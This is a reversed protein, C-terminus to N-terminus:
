DDNVITGQGQSDSITANVPSSLNVFLTENPEVVLEGKVLVTLTLSTVGPSFSLTTLAKATYDGPAVATGNATQYKVSVTRSSALSLKVTFTMAVTGSDPETVSVNNISITATDNDKITGIGTGAGTAITANTPSSLVLKFTEDLEDILDGKVSVSVNKSVQGPAFTLTTLPLATYDGPALATTNATAYKVTISKSSPGSLTVAFTANIAGTNGENVMVSNVSLKPQTENDLITLVATKPTGLNAGGTVNSLTLNVTENGEYVADNCITIVFTKNTMDGDAWSLTGTKTVYDKGAACSTFGVATGNTTAYKVTAAGGSGGTRTVNITMTGASENVSYTSASLKLSGGENVTISVTDTDSKAGGTGLNGLDNTVIQLAAAGSYNLTPKFSLGNLATNINAVTGTFSTATDNTGDGTIFSLGSTGSLTITGKTATLTVRVANSGADSDDISIQNSGGTSFVKATNEGTTQAAPVTNVPADNPDLITLTATNPSGLTAGGSMVTLDLNLTEDPSENVGDNIIPLQITKNTADGAPWTVFLDGNVRAVRARMASNYTTFSGGVIIRGDPQLPTATLIVNNAGTGPNFTTDLTGDSNVRVIRNRSVGDYMVFNGCVIVKGDPQLSTTWVVGSPGSVPNFSPDHTGDANARILRNRAVGNFSGFNGGIIVKGDPQVAVGWVISNDVGTGSNFSTDLTGDANLRAIRGIANGDYGTFGGAIFIKGDSQLAMTYVGSSGSAGTHGTPIFTTDLSGNSHMRALRGRLTGDYASFEGGIIAKGDPQLLIARVDPPTGDPTIDTAGTGPDFSTDLTGDSNLRAIHARATGDYDTFAGGIIIRGDTQTAIAYVIGNAGTGPNFTADLTGNSNLRAIHARATGDYNLFNGGILIKGDAQVAVSWVVSDAGTGPTFSTDVSGPAFRYDAASTTVDSLSVKAVVENDTGGTRTLTITADGATEDVNYTASSFALSGTAPLLRAIHDSAAAANNYSIFDGGILIKGDPQVAVAQVSDDAGAGGNNFSADLTGDANLRAIKDSCAAGNYSTFDGGIVVKGDTQVAVAAVTTDTGVGSPNFTADLTGDSNLRAVGDGPDAGNYDSFSGGILIKGDPQLAAAKVSSNAGFGGSNFSADLTGDANLRAIGNSCDAGNYNAFTGAIIVKGDTQVVVAMVAGDDAGTISSNFSTDLTGDSNLRAIRDSVNADGNYSTFDGGILIKGDPQVAVARVINNTGAGGNNFSTDLTGDANLRAITDSCDAGNYNAFTGGILIKGDTQVAVAQVASSAGAGSYNFSTDLTGDANLRAIRDSANADGNYSTFDGGILIKGDPQMAVAYVDSDAGAGGPNFAPDLDGGAAAAREGSSFILALACVVSLLLFAIRKPLSLYVATRLTRSM